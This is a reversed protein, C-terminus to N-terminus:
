TGSDRYGTGFSVRVVDTDDTCLPRGKIRTERCQLSCLGGVPPGGDTYGPWDKGGTKHEPSACKAVVEEVGNRRDGLTHKGATWFM